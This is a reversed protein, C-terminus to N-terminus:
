RASDAASAMPSSTPAAAPTYSIVWRELLAHQATHLINVHVPTSNRWLDMDQLVMELNQQQLLASNSGSSDANSPVASGTGLVATQSFTPTPSVTRAKIVIQGIKSIFEM